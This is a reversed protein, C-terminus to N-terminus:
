DRVVLVSRTSHRVVRSANPGILYDKLQPRHSTVVVLDADICAAADLIEKYITGHAVHREVEVDPPVLRDSLEGFERRAQGIAQEAFNEPFFQGVITMGFDPVVTLLHLRAGSGQCYGVATPLAKRWSSDYKLDNAILINKYM